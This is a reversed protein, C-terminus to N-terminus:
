PHVRGYGPTYRLTYGVMGLTYMPPMLRMYRLTYMPPMLRMSGEDRGNFVSCHPAYFRWEGMLSPVILRM